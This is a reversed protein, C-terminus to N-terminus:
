MRRRGDFVHYKEGQEAPTLDNWTINAGAQIGKGAAGPDAACVAQDVIMDAQPFLLRLISLIVWVLDERGSPQRAFPTQRTALFVGVDLIQPQLQKLFVLDQALHEMKQYPLGIQFGSGLCYGLEKLEWLIQKRRLLSMDAPHLKKYHSDDATEHRLIYGWAGAQKWRRASERPREGLALVIRMGPCETQVQRLLQEVREPTFFSDEGSQWLVTRIGQAYGKQCCSLITEDEMRYRPLFRNERRIGCYYCDKRCYNSLSLVGWGETQIETQRDRVQCARQALYEASEKDRFRIIEVYEEVSLERTIYLRDILSQMGENM